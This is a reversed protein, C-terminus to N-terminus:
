HSSNLRISKRDKGSFNFLQNFRGEFQLNWENHLCSCGIIPEIGMLVTYGPRVPISCHVQQRGAPEKQHFMSCAPDSGPRLLAKDTPCPNWSISIPTIAPLLSIVSRMRKPLVAGPNM